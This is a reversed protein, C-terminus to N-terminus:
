IPESKRMVRTQGAKDSLLHIHLHDVVQGAAKGNHIRVQYAGKAGTQKAVTRVALLLEGALNKGELDDLQTFHQKPVILVHVPAKPNIDNFAAAYQNEWILKSSDAAISCFLCKNM